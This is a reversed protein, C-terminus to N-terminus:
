KELLEGFEKQNIQFVGAAKEAAEDESKGVGKSSFKTSARITKTAAEVVSINVDLTVSYITGAMGEVKGPVGSKAEVQLQLHSSPVIQYGASSVAESIKKKLGDSIKANASSVLLSFKKDSAAASWLFSVSSAAINKEFERGLESIAIRARIGEGSMPRISTQLMAIGNADTVTKGVINKEGYVFEIPVGACLSNEYKVLVQFPQAFQEGIKGKQNDGSKKELKVKSLIERVDAQLANANFIFDSAFARRSVATYLVQKAYLPAVVLRIQSVNQIAEVLRGKEAFNKANVRLEAAQKWGSILEAHLSSGYAERNLVALAYATNSSQDVMTEIIEAGAIEDNIVSRSQRKFDSYMQEDDNMQYSETVSKMESQIQVRLQAAIDAVAAKKAADIGTTGSGTAVGIVYDNKSYKPHTNTTYWNPIQALLTSCLLLPLIFFYNRKVNKGKWNNLQM